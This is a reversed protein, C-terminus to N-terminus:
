LWEGEHNIFIYGHSSSFIMRPEPEAPRHGSTCYWGDETTVVQAGCIRCPDLGISRTEDFAFYGGSPTYSGEATVFTVEDDCVELIYKGSIIESIILEQFEPRLRFKM